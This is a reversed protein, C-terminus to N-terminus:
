TRRKTQEFNRPESRFPLSVMSPLLLLLLLPLVLWVYMAAIAAACHSFRNKHACSERPQIKNAAAAVPDACVVMWKVNTPKEHGDEHEDRSREKTQNLKHQVRRHRCGRDIWLLFYIITTTYHSEQQKNCVSWARESDSFRCVRVCEGRMHFWVCVGWSRLSRLILFPSSVAELFEIHRCTFEKAYECVQVDLPITQALLVVSAWNAWVRYVALKLWM